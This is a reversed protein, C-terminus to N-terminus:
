IQGKEQLRTSILMLMLMSVDMGANQYTSLHVGNFFTYIFLYHCKKKCEFAPGHRPSGISRWFDLCEVSNRKLETLEETWFSRQSNPNTKPLVGEAALVANVIDCYYNELCVKHSDNTCCTSGHCIASYSVEISNLRQTM